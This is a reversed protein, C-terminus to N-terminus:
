LQRHQLEGADKDLREVDRMSLQAERQSCCRGSSQVCCHLLVEADLLKVNCQNARLNAAGCHVDAYCVGADSMSWESVSSACYMLGPSMYHSVLDYASCQFFSFRQEEIYQIQLYNFASRSRRPRDDPCRISHVPM